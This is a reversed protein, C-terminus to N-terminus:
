LDMLHLHPGTSWGTNGSLGVRDGENIKQGVNVSIKSLHCYMFGGGNANKVRVHLGYGSSDMDARIVEGAESALITTGVPLGYDVGNHTGDPRCSKSYGSGIGFKQTLPYKGDFPMRM